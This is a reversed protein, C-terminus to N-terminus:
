WPERPPLVTVPRDLLRLTHGVAVALLFSVLTWMAAVTLALTM